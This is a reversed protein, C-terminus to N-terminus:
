VTQGQKRCAQLIAERLADTGHRLLAAIAATTGQERYLRGDNVPRPAGAHAIPLSACLLEEVHLLVEATGHRMGRMFAAVVSGGWEPPLMGLISAAHHPDLMVLEGVVAHVVALGQMSLLRGLLVPPVDLLRAFPTDMGREPTAPIGESAYLVAQMREPGLARMLMRRAQPVGEMILADIGAVGAGDQLLVAEVQEMSQSELCALIRVFVVVAEPTMRSLTQVTHLEGMALTRVVFREEATLAGAIMERRGLRRRVEDAMEPELMDLLITRRRPTCAALAITALQPHGCELRDALLEDSLVLLRDLAAESAGAGPTVIHLSDDKLIPYLPEIVEDPFFLWWDQETRTSGFDLSLSVRWGSGSSLPVFAPAEGSGATTEIEFFPLFASEVDLQLLHCLRTVLGSAVESTPWGSSGAALGEAGLAHCVVSDAWGGDVIFCACADLPAVDFVHVGPAHLRIGEGASDVRELTGAVMHCPTGTFAEVRRAAASVFRRVIRELVPLRKPAALQVPEREPGAKRHRARFPLVTRRTPTRISM